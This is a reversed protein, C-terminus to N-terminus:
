TEGKIKNLLKEQNSEPLTINLGYGGLGSNCIKCATDKEQLENIASQCKEKIEYAGPLLLLLLLITPILWMMSAKFDSTLTRKLNGEIKKGSEDKLPYVVEYRGGKLKKVYLDDRIKEINKNM